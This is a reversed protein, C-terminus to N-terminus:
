KLVDYNAARLIENFVEVIYKNKDNAIIELESINNLWHLILKDRKNTTDFNYINSNSKDRVKDKALEFLKLRADVSLRLAFSIMILQNKTPLKGMTVDYIGKKILSETGLQNLTVNSEKILENLYEEFTNIKGFKSERGNSIEYIYDIVETINATHSNGFKDKLLSILFDINYENLLVNDLYNKEREIVLEIFDEKVMSKVVDADPFRRYVESAVCKILFEDYYKGDRVKLCQNLKNQTKYARFTTEVFTELSDNNSLKKFSDEYLSMYMDKFYLKKILLYVDHEEGEMFDKLVEIDLRRYDGNM